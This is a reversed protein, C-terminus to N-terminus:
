PTTTPLSRPPHIVSGSRRVFRELLSPDRAPIEHNLAKVAVIEGTQTDTARYVDCMGGRGLLDKELDNITFRQAITQNPSM